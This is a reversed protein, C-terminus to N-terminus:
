FKVWENCRNSGTVEDLSYLLFRFHVRFYKVDNLFIKLYTNDLNFPGIDEQTIKYNTVKNLIFDQQTKYNQQDNLNFVSTKNKNLSDSSSQNNIFFKNFENNMSKEEFYFLEVVTYNRLYNIKNILMNDLNYFNKISKKFQARLEDVNYLYIFKNYDDSEKSSNDIFLTYFIREQARINTTVPNLILVAQIITFIALLFHNIVKIKLIKSNNDKDSKTELFKVRKNSKKKKKKKKKNKLFFNKNKKKKFKKKKQIDTHIEDFKEKKHIEDIYGVYKIEDKKKNDKNEDYHNEYNKNLLKESLDSSLEM